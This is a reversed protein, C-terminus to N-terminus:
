YWRPLKASFYWSTRRGLLHLNLQDSKQKSVAKRKNQFSGLQKLQCCFEPIRKAHQSEPSTSRKGWPLLPLFYTSKGWLASSVGPQMAGAWPQEWLQHSTALGLLMGHGCGSSGSSYGTGEWESSVSEFELGSKTPIGHRELKMLYGPSTVQRKIRGM